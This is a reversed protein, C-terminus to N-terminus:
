LTPGSTHFGFERHGLTEACTLAGGAIRHVARHIMDCAGDLTLDKQILGSLDLDIHEAMWQGAHANATLKIVPAIAYGLPTGRGTTFLALHAGGSIMGCLSTLDQGPCDMFHLGGQPIDQGYNLCSRIPGTGSKCVAGLSKEEITTLGGQINGPSPQSGRMDVGMANAAAETAQIRQIVADCIRPNPTRRQIVAEAGMLECTEGFVVTGGAEVMRDTFRGLAPNAAMGSSFDSGGCELAITLASLPLEMRHEDTAMNEMLAQCVDKGRAITATTGGCEQIELHAAPTGSERADRALDHANHQECGLGVYLVAGVNPHCGTKLLINRTNDADAGLQGCGAQHTIPVAGPVSAAIREVAHNACFVTAIVTLHNRIGVRGDRRQFGQITEKM